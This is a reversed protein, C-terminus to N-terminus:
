AEPREADLPLEMQREATIGMRRRLCQLCLLGAGNGYAAWVEDTCHFYDHPGGDNVVNLGCDGCVAGEAMAEIEADTIPTGDPWYALIVIKCAEAMLM